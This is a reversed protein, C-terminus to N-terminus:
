FTMVGQFYNYVQNGSGLYFLLLVLVDEREQQEKNKGTNIPELCCDIYKIERNHGM